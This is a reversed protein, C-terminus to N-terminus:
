EVWGIERGDPFAQPAVEAGSSARRGVAKGVVGGAHGPGRAPRGGGVHARWAPGPAGVLRRGRQGVPGLSDAARRLGLADRGRVFGWGPEGWQNAPTPNTVTVFSAPSHGAGKVCTRSKRVWIATQPHRRVPLAGARSRGPLVADASGSRSRINSLGNVEATLTAEV